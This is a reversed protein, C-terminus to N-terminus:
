TKVGFKKKIDLLEPYKTIWVVFVLLLPVLLIIRWLIVIAVATAPDLGGAVLLGLMSFDATGIGGPILSIIGALMSITVTFIIYLFNLYGGFATILIHMVLFANIGFALTILFNISVVRRNSALEATETLIRSIKNKLWSVFGKGSHDNTAKKKRLLKSNLFIIIRAPFLIFICFLIVLIVMLLISFYIELYNVNSLLIVGIVISIITMIALYGLEAITEINIVSIGKTYPIKDMRQLVTAKVYQGIKPPLILGYLLGYSTTGIALGIKGSKYAGIARVNVIWRISYLIIGL